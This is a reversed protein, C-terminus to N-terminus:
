YTFFPKAVDNVKKKFIGFIQTPRLAYLLPHGLCAFYFRFAVSLAVITPLQTQYWVKFTYTVQRRIVNGARLHDWAEHRLEQTFSQSSRTTFEWHEMKPTGTKKIRIRYFKSRCFPTHQMWCFSINFNFALMKVSAASNATSFHSFM